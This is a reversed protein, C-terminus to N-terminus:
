KNSYKMIRHDGMRQNHGGAMATSKYIIKEVSEINLQKQFTKNRINETRTKRKIKRLFRM